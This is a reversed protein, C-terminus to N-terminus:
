FSDRNCPVILYEFLKLSWACRPENKRRFPLESSCFKGKRWASFWVDMVWVSVSCPMFLGASMWKWLLVLLFVGSLSLLKVVLGLLVILLPGFNLYLLNLSFLQPLLLQRNGPSGLDRPSKEKLPLSNVVLHMLYIRRAIRIEWIVSTHVKIM